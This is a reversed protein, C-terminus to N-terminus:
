TRCQFRSSLFVWSYVLTHIIRGPGQFIMLLYLFIWPTTINSLGLPLFLSNLLLLGLALVWSMNDDSSCWSYGVSLLASHATLCFLVYFMNNCHQIRLIFAELQVYRLYQKVLTQIQLSPSSTALCHLKWLSWITARVLTYTVLFLFTHLCRQQRRFQCIFKSHQKGSVAQDVALIYDMMLDLSFYSHNMMVQHACRDGTMGLTQFKVKAGCAEQHDYHAHTCFSLVISDAQTDYGLIVCTSIPM